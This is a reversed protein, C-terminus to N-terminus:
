EFTFDNDRDKEYDFEISQDLIYKYNEFKMKFSGTTGRRRNAQVSLLVKNTWVTEKKEKYAERWLMMVTDAEQHFGASGKLNEVTPLDLPSMKTTHVATVITINLTKAIMRIQQLMEVIIMDYPANINPKKIYGFHDIFVVKSDFKIVSETIRDSIWKLSYDKNTRPVAFLPIERGREKMISILEDANQEFPLLLPNSEKMKRVLDLIFESKGSKPMAGIIVHQGPYFGTLLKDLEEHNTLTPKPLPNKELQMAIELSTVVKDEGEYMALHGNIREDREAKVMKDTINNNEVKLQKLKEEIWEM